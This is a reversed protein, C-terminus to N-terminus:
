SPKLHGHRAKALPTPADKKLCHLRSHTFLISQPWSTPAPTSFSPSLSLSTLVSAQPCSIGEWRPGGEWSRKAQAASEQRSLCHGRVEEEGGERCSSPKGTDM